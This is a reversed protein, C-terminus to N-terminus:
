ETIKKSRPEWDLELPPLDVQVGRWQESVDAKLREMGEGVPFQEDPRWSLGIKWRGKSSPDSLNPWLVSDTEISSADDQKMAKMMEARSHLCIAHLRIEGPEFPVQLPALGGRLSNSIEIKRVNKEDSLREVNIQLNGGQIKKAGFNKLAVCSQSRLPPVTVPENSCNELFVLLYIDDTSTDRQLHKVMLRIGNVPESWKGAISPKQQNEAKVNPVKEQGFSNFSFLTVVTSIVIPKLHRMRIKRKLFLM